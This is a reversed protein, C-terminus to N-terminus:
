TRRACSANEDAASKEPFAIEVNRMGIRRHRHDFRHFILGCAIGLQFLVSDPILSLLHFARVLLWFILGDRFGLKLRTGEPIGRSLPFDSKNPRSGTLNAPSASQKLVDGKLNPSGSRDLDTSAPSSALAM